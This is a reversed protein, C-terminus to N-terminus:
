NFTETLLNLNQAYKEGWLVKFNYQAEMSKAHFIEFETIKNKAQIFDIGDFSIGFCDAAFKIDSDVNLRMSLECLVSYLTPAINQKGDNSSGKWDTIKTLLKPTFAWYKEDQNDHDCAIKKGYFEFFSIDCNMSDRIYEKFEVACFIGTKNLFLVAVEESGMLVM